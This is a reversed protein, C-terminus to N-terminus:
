KLAAVKAAKVGLKVADSDKIFNWIVILILIGGLVFLGIRAWNGSDTIWGIPNSNLTPFTGAEVGPSPTATGGLARMVQKATEQQKAYNSGDSFASRQVTQAAQPITMDARNKVKALADYFLKASNNVNMLESATGWIGVQQQFVGVSMHDRGVNDHPINLSEPVNSNAYNQLSSETLAVTIATEIDRESMGRQKGVSYIQRAISLQGATLPLEATTM